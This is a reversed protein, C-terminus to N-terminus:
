SRRRLAEIAPDLEDLILTHTSSSVARSVCV